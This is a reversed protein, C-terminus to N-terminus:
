RSFSRAYFLPIVFKPIAKGRKKMRRRASETSNLNELQVYSRKRLTSSSGFPRRAVSRVRTLAHCVPSIQRKKSIVFRCLFFVYCRSSFGKKTKICINTIDRSLSSSDFFFSFSSLFYILLFFLIFFFFLFLLFCFFILHSM